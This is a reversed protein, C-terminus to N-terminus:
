KIDIVVYESRTHTKFKIKWDGMGSNVIFVTDEHKQMGYIMDNIKLMIGIQGLPFLQGGHTHGSLVLDVKSEKENKYDNPQHDLVIMYKEKDLDKVVDSISLRSPVSSDKRGILYINDTINVVKDELITVDNKELESELNKYDYKRSNYYGKDHNGYSFYVGYKTKLTGLAYTAKLMDSYATDDDIFDGTIVVIDPKEDNIKSMYSIFDDGSFTAGVHTDSIQVIRFNEVGLDKDTNISYNTKIINTAM